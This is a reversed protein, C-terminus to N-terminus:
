RSAYVAQCPVQQRLLKTHCTKRIYQQGDYSKKCAFISNNTKHETEDFIRITKRFLLRHCVICIYFPGERIKKKFSMIYYDLNHSVNKGFNYLRNKKNENLQKKRQQDLTQHWMCKNLRMNELEKEREAAVWQIISNKDILM